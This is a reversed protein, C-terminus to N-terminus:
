MGFARHISISFSRETGLRISEFDQHVPWDFEASFITGSLPGRDLMVNVALPISVITAASRTLDEAPDRTPDSAPDMGEVSGSRHVRVGSHVSLVDVVRYAAWMRAEFVDGRRWGFESDDVRIRAKAQAGVTGYENQTAFTVGPVLSVSGTGLQMSVPLREVQGTALNLDSEGDDGTPLEVGLSIHSRVSRSNFAEIMAEIEVDGIGDSETRQLVDADNVVDREFDAFRGTGRVTLFDTVGYSIDIRQWRDRRDFPAIQFGFVQFVDEIDIADEDFRVEDAERQEFTYGIEWAGAPLLRDGIIPGFQRADPRDYSFEHAEQASAPAAVLAALALLPFSRKLM